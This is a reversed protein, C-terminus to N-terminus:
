GKGVEEVAPIWFIARQGISLHQYVKRSGALVEKPRLSHRQPVPGIMQPCQEEKEHHEQM